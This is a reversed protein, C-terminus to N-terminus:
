SAQAGLLGLLSCSRAPSSRSGSRTAPQLDDRVPSRRPARGPPDRDSATRDRCAMVPVEVGQAVPHHDDGPRDPPVPGPRAVPRHGYPWFAVACGVAVVTLVALRRSRRCPSIQKTPQEGSVLLRLLWFETALHNVLGLGIGGAICGALTWEGLPGPDLLRGRDPGAAVLLVKRQDRLVRGFSATAGDAARRPTRLEADRMATVRQLDHLVETGCLRVSAYGSAPTGVVIGVAIGILVGAPDTGAQEDVVLGIVMGGVVAAVLLGGLGALDRGRLTNEAHSMACTPLYM